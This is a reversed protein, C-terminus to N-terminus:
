IYFHIPRIKDSVYAFLFTCKASVFSSSFIMLIVRGDILKNLQEAGLCQCVCKSRKLLKKECVAWINELHSAKLCRTSFTRKSGRLNSGNHQKYLLM